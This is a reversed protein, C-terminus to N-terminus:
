ISFELAARRLGDLSMWNSLILCCLIWLSEVLFVRFLDTSEPVHSVGLEMYFWSFEIVGIFGSLEIGNGM